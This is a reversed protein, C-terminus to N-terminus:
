GRAIPSDDSQRHTSPDGGGGAASVYSEVSLEVFRRETGSEKLIRDVRMLLQEQQRYDECDLVTRLAPRLHEQILITKSM